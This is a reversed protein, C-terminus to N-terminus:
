SDLCSAFVLYSHSVLLPLVLTMLENHLCNAQGLNRIQNVAARYKANGPNPLHFPPRM